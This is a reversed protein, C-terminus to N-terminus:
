PAERAALAARMEARSNCLHSENEVVLPHSGGLVRQAIPEIEELTAVAERIDDLTAGDARYLAEAYNWRMRLMNADGERFSCRAVPIMKRMLSKAEEFRQLGNLSHAYDAAAALTEVHEEGYLKLSGSYVNRRLVIAEEYRRLDQYTSALSTQFWLMTQEPAGLRQYVALQTERVSLADENHKGDALGNGLEALATVRVMDTEPRGVYTKWCAWGLACYVVGHYDQECLSCSYWRAWRANARKADFNNEVAEDYLIKAQEALCSVHAFGATGRCSCGRVLGEKTKWHLAQTCIYCTQGKTDEACAKAAIAVAETYKKNAHYQEAGGGKRIKKCLKDHGGEKWHYEQCTRGCYRTKCRSCQKASLPPLQAACVPCQTLIM